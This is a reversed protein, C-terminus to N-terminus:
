TLDSSRIAEEVREDSVGMEDVSEVVLEMELM